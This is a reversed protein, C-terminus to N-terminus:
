SGFSKSKMKFTKINNKCKKQMLKIYRFKIIISKLKNKFQLKINNKYDKTKFKHTRTILIQTKM